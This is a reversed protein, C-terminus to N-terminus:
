VARRQRASQLDVVNPSQLLSELRDALQRDADDATHMYILAARPTSHGLRKMLQPLGAGTQAALTQGTHRLDHWRLDPRGIQQRAKDFWASRKARTVFAGTGTTFLLADPDDDVFRQMHDALMDAVTQPLTVTRVSAATKPQGFTVQTGTLEVLQREVTVTRRELDVHRRALAFLEGGRLGSWAALLVATAYRPQVLQSLQQVEDITAPRREEAKSGNAGAIRCPNTEILQEDVATNLVTRLLRYAHAAATRGRKTDGTAVYSRQRRAPMPRGAEAWAKMVGPSIRGTEAVDMGVAKAWVRAPHPLRPNSTRAPQRNTARLLKAHWERVLTPTIAALPYDGICMGGVDSLLWCRTLSKYLERTSPRLPRPPAALWREIFLRLTVTGSDPNRWDGRAIDTRTAALWADAETKTPFTQPATRLKGSPDRYRM